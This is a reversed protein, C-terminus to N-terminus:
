EGLLDRLEKEAAEVDDQTIWDGEDVEAGTKPAMSRLNEDTYIPSLGSGDAAQNNTATHYHHRSFEQSKQLLADMVKKQKAKKTEEAAQHRLHAETALRQLLAKQNAQRMLGTFAKDMKDM